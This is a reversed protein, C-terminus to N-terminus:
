KAKRALNFPHTECAKGEECRTWESKIHDADILTITAEHMHNSKAPDINAGNEFKFTLTKPDAGATAKLHPQNGLICYHTLVLDKGEMHYVTLMEHDTGPFITETVTNGGATVRFSSAVQDTPKGDKDLMVWDGALKKITDLSPGDTKTKEDARGATLCALGLSLALAFSAIRKM